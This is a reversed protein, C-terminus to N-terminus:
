PLSLFRQSARSRLSVSVGLHCGRDGCRSILPESDRLSSYHLFIQWPVRCSGYRSLASFRVILYGYRYASASIFDTIDAPEPQDRSSQTGRQCGGCGITQNIPKSNFLSLSRLHRSVETKESVQLNYTATQAHARPSRPGRGMSIQTLCMVSQRDIILRPADLPTKCWIAGGIAGAAPRARPRHAEILQIVLDLFSRRANHVLPALSVAPFTSRLSICCTPPV